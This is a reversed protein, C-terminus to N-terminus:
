VPSAAGSGLQSSQREGGYRLAGKQRITRAIERQCLLADMTLVRGELVLGALLEQAAPIENTKDDVAQQALTLGLRQSLVSLLHVNIAGQKRSGRLSKGDLAMPELQGQGPPLAALCQEAWHTLAAEFAERDLHRFVTHFTGVCPTKPRTFGLARALDDGYLHGWEAIAGYSRYGCLTAAVALGLIARLPHRQGQPRRFDPVTALVDILAPCAREM